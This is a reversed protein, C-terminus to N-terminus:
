YDVASSVGLSGSVGLLGDLYTGAVALVGMSKITNHSFTRVLGRRSLIVMEVNNSRDESLIAAMNDRVTFRKHYEKALLVAKRAAHAM